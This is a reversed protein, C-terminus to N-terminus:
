QNSRLWRILSQKIEWLTNNGPELGIAADIEAATLGKDALCERIAYFKDDSPVTGENESTTLIAGIGYKSNTRIEMLVAEGVQSEGVFVNPEPPIANAGVLDIFSLQPYDIEIESRYIGEGSGDDVHRSIFTTHGM